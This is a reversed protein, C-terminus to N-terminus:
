MFVQICYYPLGWHVNYTSYQFLVNFCINFLTCLAQMPTNKASNVDNLIEVGFNESVSLLGLASGM